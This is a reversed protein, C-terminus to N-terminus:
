DLDEPRALKTRPYITQDPRQEFPRADGRIKAQHVRVTGVSGPRPHGDKKPRIRWPQTLLARKGAEFGQRYALDASKKEGKDRGSLHGLYYAMGVLVIIICVGAIYEWHFDRM